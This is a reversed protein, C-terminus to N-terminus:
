RKKKKSFPNTFIGKQLYAKNMKKYSFAKPKKM